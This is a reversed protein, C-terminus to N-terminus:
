KKTLNECASQYSQSLTNLVRKGVVLSMISKTSLLFVVFLLSVSYISKPEDLYQGLKLTIMLESMFSTDQNLYYNSCVKINKGNFIINETYLGPQVLISDGSVSLDIAHQITACALSPTLGSNVDNGSTSVHYKLQSYGTLSVFLAFFSLFVKM